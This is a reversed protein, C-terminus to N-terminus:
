RVLSGPTFGSMCRNVNLCWEIVPMYPAVSSGPQEGGWFVRRAVCLLNLVGWRTAICNGLQTCAVSMDGLPCARSKGTTGSSIWIHHSCPLGGHCLGGARIRLVYQLAILLGMRLPAPKFVTPQISPMGVFHHHAAPNSIYIYLVILEILCCIYIHLYHHNGYFQSVWFHM